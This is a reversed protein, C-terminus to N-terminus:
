TGTSGGRCARCVPGPETIMATAPVMRGCLTKYRGEGSRLGATYARQTVRHNLGDDAATLEFYPREFWVRNM